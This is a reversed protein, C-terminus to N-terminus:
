MKNLTLKNSYAQKLSKVAENWAEFDQRRIIGQDITIQKEYSIEGNNQTYRILMSFAEHKKEFSPPLQTVTYGAPIKLTVKTTNLIKGNVMMDSVRQPKIIFDSYAHDHDIDIYLENDFSSVHNNLSLKYNLILPKERAQLNSHELQSIINNKDGQSTIKDLLTARDSLTAENLMYLLGTKMEGNYETTGSGSLSNNEIQLAYQSTIRNREKSAVPVRDLMYTTGDEIMVQRGQIREANENLPVFKETADLFYKKDKLLVTCIM